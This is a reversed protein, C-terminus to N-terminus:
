QPDQQDNPPQVKLGLYEYFKVYNEYSYITNAVFPAIYHVLSADPYFPDKLVQLDIDVYNLEKAMEIVMKNLSSESDKVAKDFLNNKVVHKKIYDELFYIVKPNDNFVIPVQNISIVFQEHLANVHRLGLLTAFLNFKNNYKRDSDSRLSQLKEAIKVARIPSYYIALISVFLFLLNIVAIALLIYDKDSFGINLNGFDQITKQAVYITDNM